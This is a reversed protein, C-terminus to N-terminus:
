NFHDATAESIVAMTMHTHTHAHTNNKAIIQYYSIKYTYSNTVTNGVMGALCYLVFVFLFLFMVVGFNAGSNSSKEWYISM